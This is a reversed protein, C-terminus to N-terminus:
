GAHANPDSVGLIARGDQQTLDEFLAEEEQAWEEKSIFEVEALYREGQDISNYSLEILAATCARMGNTPLIDKEGLLANLLTSKGAGTTGVVVVSMGPLVCKQSLKSLEALRADRLAPPAWHQESRLLELMKRASWSLSGVCTAESNLQADVLKSDLALRPTHAAQFALSLSESPAAAAAAASPGAVAAASPHHNSQNSQSIRLRCPTPPATLLDASFLAWPCLRVTTFAHTGAQRNAVEKRMAALSAQLLPPTTRGGAPPPAALAPLAPPPTASVAVPIYVVPKAPLATPGGGKLAQIRHHLKRRTGFKDVGLVAETRAPKNAGAHARAVESNAGGEGLWVCRAGLEAETLSTLVEGDVEHTQAQAAVAPRTDSPLVECELLWESVEETGWECVSVESFKRKTMAYAIGLLLTNSLRHRM